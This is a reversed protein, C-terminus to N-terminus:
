YENMLTHVSHPKRLIILNDTCIDINPATLQYITKDRSIGRALTSLYFVVPLIYLGTNKCNLNFVGIGMEKTHSKCPDVGVSM